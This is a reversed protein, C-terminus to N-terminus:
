DAYRRAQVPDAFINELALDVGTDRQLFDKKCSVIAIVGILIALLIYNIKM